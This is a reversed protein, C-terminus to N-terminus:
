PSYFHLLRIKDRIYEYASTDGRDVSRLIAGATLDAVQVLPESHSRANVMKTFGRRVGRRKLDRKLENLVKGAPDFQDLILLAGEREEIPILRILEGVFFTYIQRGGGSRFYDPLVRKDVVIAWVSFHQQSLAEFVAMRLRASTLEHYRFEFSAPLKNQSRVRDLCIRLDDPTATAILTFVFYRSAGRGFSFSPDGAEDGAFVYTRVPLM